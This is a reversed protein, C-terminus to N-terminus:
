DQGIRMDQWYYRTSTITRPVTDLGSSWPSINLQWTHALPTHYKLATSVRRVYWVITENILSWYNSWRLRVSQQKVAAGAM